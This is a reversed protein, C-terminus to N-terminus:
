FTFHPHLFIFGRFRPSFLFSFSLKKPFFLTKQFLIFTKSFFLTKEKLYEFGFKFESMQFPSGLTRLSKEPPSTVDRPLCRTTGRSIQFFIKMNEKKLARINVRGHCGRLNMRTKQSYFSMYCGTLASCGTLQRVLTRVEREHNRRHAIMYAM